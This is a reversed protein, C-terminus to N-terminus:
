PFVSHKVSFIARGSSSRIVLKRASIGCVMNVEDKETAAILLDATAAGAEILTDSNIASGEVCIVDFTNSIQYITDPTQEIVTIDHGEESLIKTLTSGIRGAGAIIIKM